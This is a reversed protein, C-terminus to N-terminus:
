RFNGCGVEKGRSGDTIAGGNNNNVVVRYRVAPTQQRGDRAILFLRAMSSVIHLTSHLDHRTGKFHVGHMDAEM